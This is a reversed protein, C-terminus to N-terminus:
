ATEMAHQIENPAHARTCDHAIRGRSYFFRRCETAGRHIYPRALMTPQPCRVDDVNWVTRRLDKRCDASTQFIGTESSLAARAFVRIAGAVGATADRVNERRYRDVGAEQFFLHRILFLAWM